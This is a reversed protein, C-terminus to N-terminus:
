ARDSPEAEWPPMGAADAAAQEEALDYAVHRQEVIWGDATATLVTYAALPPAGVPPLGVSAVNILLAFPTTRVFSSHYHGFAIATAGTGQYGEIVEDISNHPGGRRDGTGRPSSHVVLLDGAPTPLRVDFPLAALRALIEGGLQRRTWAIQAQASPRLHPPYEGHAIRGAGLAEDENGRVLTWGRGILTDWVARPRPGGQVLDGAVVVQDLPGARDLAEAVARLGALNGHVDSLLGVRM